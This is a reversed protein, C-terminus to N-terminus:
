GLVIPRPRTQTSIDDQVIPETLHDEKILMSM